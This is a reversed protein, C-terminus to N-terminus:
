RSKRAGAEKKKRGDTTEEMAKAQMEKIREAYAKLRNKM